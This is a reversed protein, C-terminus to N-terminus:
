LLTESLTFLFVDILEKYILLSYISKFALIM